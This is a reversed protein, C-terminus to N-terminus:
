KERCFSAADPGLKGCRACSNARKIFEGAISFAIASSAFDLCIGSSFARLSACSM